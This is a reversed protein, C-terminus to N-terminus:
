KLFAVERCSERVDDRAFFGKAREDRAFVPERGEGIAECRANFTARDVSEVAHAAAQRADKAIDQAANGTDRGAAAGKETSRAIDGGGYQAYLSDLIANRQARRDTANYTEAARETHTVPPPAKTCAFTAALLASLLMPKM